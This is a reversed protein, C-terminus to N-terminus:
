TYFHEARENAWWWFPAGQCVIFRDLWLEFNMALPILEEFSAIHDKWCLYNLNHQSYISSNIVINKEYIYAIAYCGEYQDFHKNYDIIQQLSYLEIEGGYHIDDFLRCGNTIKLFARYDSPIIWGTQQEFDKLEKESAPANFTCKAKYLYGQESQIQLVDGNEELRKKLAQLTQRVIDGEKLM